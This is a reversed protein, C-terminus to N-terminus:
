VLLHGVVINRAGATVTHFVPRVGYEVLQKEEVLVEYFGGGFLGARMQPILAGDTQTRPTRAGDPHPLSAILRTGATLHSASLDYPRASPVHVSCLM